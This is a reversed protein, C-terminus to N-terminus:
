ILRTGCTSMLGLTKGDPDEFFAMWEEVGNAHRHIMHPAGQFTVGRGSLATFSAEIDDSRFYLISDGPEGTEKKGASLFLRIGHCDFFALTGFTYLHTFGLVDRYWAVSVELDRVQRSIQGIPGLVPSGTMTTAGHMVSGRPAGHWQKLDSRSTLALKGIANAVHFKVADLSVGLRRRIAGNGMGHRVANVVRWEAPTLRDPHRPRGRGM